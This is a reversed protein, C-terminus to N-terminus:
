RRRRIRDVLLGLLGLVAWAGAASRGDGGPASCNCGSDAEPLENGGTGGGGTGGGGAGGVDGSGGAGGAGGGGGAGGAGETMCGASCGDADVTNGDDCAEGDTQVGNGCATATCNNDCGDGSADNGDDCAEMATVIGNGCGTVICGSDCGDGDVGNGDDCGEGGAMVGNGCASPTCNTDCGDGSEVNGDDCAEGETVIANGCATVTCNSDCGDGDATNKDDCAEGDTVIGNGCATVTCDSDCGDGDTANGDDCAEGDTQVGNGCGTVTCNADCGDGSVKNKDDCAEGETVIGNGCATVTCDSDCGDGDTANGDDCAELDAVHVGDGCMASREGHVRFPFDQPVNPATEPAGLDEVVAWVSSAVNQQLANWGPLGRSDVVTVTPAFHGGNASDKSAWDVWYTGAELVAPAPLTVTNRWIKRTTGTASGPAPYKSNFIRYIATDTSSTLVNTTTDGQLVQSAPDNPAGNWLRLTYATFPSPSAAAGTKYAYFDISQVTWVEGPPVKFDDALRYQGQVGPWGASSNSELTNLKENQLESWSNGVPAVAGSKSIKGTTLAGNSHLQVAGAERAAFFAMSALLASGAARGRLVTSRM